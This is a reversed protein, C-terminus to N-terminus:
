LRSLSSAQTFNKIFMPVYMNLAESNLTVQTLIKWILAHLFIQFTRSVRSIADFWINICAKKYWINRQCLYEKVLGRRQDMLLEAGYRILGLCGCNLKYPKTLSYRNRFGSTAINSSLVAMYTSQAIVILTPGSIIPFDSITRCVSLVRSLPKLNLSLFLNMKQHQISLMTSIVRPNM